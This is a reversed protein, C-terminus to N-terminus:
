PSPATVEFDVQARRGAKVEVLRDGLAADGAWIQVIYSGPALSLHYSGDQAITERHLAAGKQYLDLQDDGEVRQLEYVIVEAQALPEDAAAQTVTGEVIGPQDGCAVLILSIVILAALFRRTQWPVIKSM